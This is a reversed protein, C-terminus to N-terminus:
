GAGEGNNNGQNRNCQAGHECQLAHRHIDEGLYTIGGNVDGLGEPSHVRCLHFTPHGGATLCASLVSSVTRPEHEPASQALGGSAVEIQSPEGGIFQSLTARAVVVAQEVQILQTRAAAEEAEARSKEAGPRLGANVHSTITRVLVKAREVGAQAAKM